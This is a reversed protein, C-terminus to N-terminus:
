RSLSPVYLIFSILTQKYFSSSFLFQIGFLYVMLYYIILFLYAVQSSEFWNDRQQNMDPWQLLQFYATRLGTGCLVKHTELHSHLTQSLFDILATGMRLPWFSSALTPFVRPPPPTRLFISPLVCIETEPVFTRASATVM